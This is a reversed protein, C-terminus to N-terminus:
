ARGLKLAHPATTVQCYCLQRLSKSVQKESANERKLMAEVAGIKAGNAASIFSSTKRSRLAAYPKMQHYM